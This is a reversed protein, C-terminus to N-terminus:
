RKIRADNNNDDENNADTSPPTMLRDMYETKTGPHMDLSISKDGSWQKESGYWGSPLVFDLIGYASNNYHGSVDTAFQEESLGTESSAGTSNDLDEDITSLADDGGQNRLETLTSSSSPDFQAYVTRIDSDDKIGLFDVNITSSSMFFTVAAILLPAPIAPILKTFYRRPL